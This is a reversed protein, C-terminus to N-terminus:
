ICDKLYLMMLIIYRIIKYFLISLKEIIILWKNWKKIKELNNVFLIYIKLVFCLFYYDM